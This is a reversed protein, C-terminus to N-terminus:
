VPLNSNFNLKKRINRPSITLEAGKDQFPDLQHRRSRRSPTDYKESDAAVALCSKSVQELWPKSTISDPPQSYDDFSLIGNTLTGNTTSKSNSAGDTGNKSATQCTQSASRPSLSRISSDRHGNTLPPRKATGNTGMARNSEHHLLVRKMNRPLFLLHRHREGELDFTFDGVVPKSFKRSAKM